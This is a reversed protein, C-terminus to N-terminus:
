RKQMLLVVGKIRASFKQRSRFSQYAQWTAPFFWGRSMLQTGLQRFYNWNRQLYLLLYANKPAKAHSVYYQPMLTSWLMRTMTKQHESEMKRAFSEFQHPHIPTGGCFCTGSDDELSVLTLIHLFSIMEIVQSLNVASQYRRIHDTSNLQNQALVSLPDM